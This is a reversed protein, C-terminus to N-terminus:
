LSKARRVAPSKQILDTILLGLTMDEANDENMAGLIYGKLTQCRETLEAEYEQDQTYKSTSELVDMLEHNWEDTDSVYYQLVERIKLVGFLVGETTTYDKSFIQGDSLTPRTHKHSVRSAVRKAEKKKRFEALAVIGSM